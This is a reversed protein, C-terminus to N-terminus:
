VSHRGCRSTRCAEQKSNRGNGFAAPTTLTVSLHLDANRHDTCAHSPMDLFRSSAVIARAM